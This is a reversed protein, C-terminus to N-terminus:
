MKRFFLPQLNFAGNAIAFYKGNPYRALLSHSLSCMKTGVWTLTRSNTHLRMCFHAFILLIEACEWVQVHTPTSFQRASFRWVSVTGYLLFMFTNIISDAFGSITQVRNSSANKKDATPRIDLCVKVVELIDKYPFLFFQNRFVLKKVIFLANLWTYISLYPAQNMSEPNTFVNSTVLTKM